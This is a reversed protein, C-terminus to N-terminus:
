ARVGGFEGDLTEAGWINGGEVIRFRGELLKLRADLAGDFDKFADRIRPM